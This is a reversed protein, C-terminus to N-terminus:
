VALVMRKNVNIMGAGTSGLSIFLAALLHAKNVSSNRHLLSKRTYIRTM